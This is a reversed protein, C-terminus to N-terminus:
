VEISFFVISVVNMDGGEVIGGETAAIDGPLTGTM